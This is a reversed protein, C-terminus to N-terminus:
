DVRVIDAVRPQDDARDSRRRSRHEADHTYANSSYALRHVALLVPRLGVNVIALRQHALEM